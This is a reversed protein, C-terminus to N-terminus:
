CEKRLKCYIIPLTLIFILLAIHDFIKNKIKYEEKFTTIESPAVYRLFQVIHVFDISFLILMVLVYTLIIYWILSIIM